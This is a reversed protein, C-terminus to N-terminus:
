LLLRKGSTRISGNNKLHIIKWGCLLCPEKNVSLRKTRAVLALRGLAKTDFPEVCSKKFCFVKFRSFSSSIFFFLIKISKLQTKASKSQDAPFGATEPAVFPQSAFGLAAKSAPLNDSM